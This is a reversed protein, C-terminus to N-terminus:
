RVRLRLSKSKAVITDEDRCLVYFVEAGGRYAAAYAADMDLTWEIPTDPESIPTWRITSSGDVVWEMQVTYGVVLDPHAPIRLTFGDILDTDLLDGVAEPVVPAPLTGQEAEQVPAPAGYPDAMSSGDETLATCIERVERLFAPYDEGFAHVADWVASLAAELADPQAAHPVAPLAMHPQSYRLPGSPRESKPPVAEGVTRDPVNPDSGLAQSMRDRDDFPAPLPRGQALAALAPAVWDLDAIGAATAASRAAFVAVGRQVGPGAADLARVLDADYRILSQASPAARLAETPSRGGWERLESKRREEQDARKREARAQRKAEAREAAAREAATPPPPLERAHRHWYAAADSTQRVVRDPEPPAPWFQLLYHDAQPEDMRTDLDRAEDMGQACYRVRHDTEELGLDWFGEGGWLELFTTSTQPRFSVEVVDEWAPDLEPAHEHVEVTFGVAGTHLGTMLWLFGPVAAGCLGSTQGAFAASLGHVGGDNGVVYLQGYHVRVEGEVPRRM